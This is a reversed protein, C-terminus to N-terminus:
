FIKFLKNIRGQEHLSIEPVELYTQNLNDFIVHWLTQNKIKINYLGSCTCLYGLILTLQVVIKM